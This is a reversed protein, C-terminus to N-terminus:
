KLPSQEPTKSHRVKSMHHAHPARTPHLEEVTPQRSVFKLMFARVMDSTSFETNSAGMFKEWLSNDVRVTGRSKEM